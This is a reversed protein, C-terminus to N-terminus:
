YLPVPLLDSVMLVGCNLHGVLEALIRIIPAQNKDKCTKAFHHLTNEGNEDIELSVRHGKVM